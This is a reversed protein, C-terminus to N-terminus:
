RRKKAFKCFLGGSQDLNIVLGSFHTCFSHLKESVPHHDLVIIPRIASGIFIEDQDHLVAFDVLVRDVLIPEQRVLV